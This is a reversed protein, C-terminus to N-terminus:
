RHVRHWFGGDLRLVIDSQHDRVSRQMSPQMGTWGLHEESRRPNMHFGSPGTRQSNPTRDNDRDRGALQTQERRGGEDQRRDEEEIQQSTQGDQSEEGPRRATQGATSDEEPPSPSDFKLRNGALALLSGPCLRNWFTVGYGPRSECRSHDHRRPPVMVVLGTQESM